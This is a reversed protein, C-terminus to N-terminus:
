KICRTRIAGFSDWVTSHRLHNMKDQPHHAAAGREARPFRDLVETAVRRFQMRLAHRTSFQIQPSALPERDFAGGHNWCHAVSNDAALGDAAVYGRLEIFCSTKEKMAM